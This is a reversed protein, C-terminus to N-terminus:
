KYGEYQQMVHNNDLELQPVPFYYSAHTWAIPGQLTKQYYAAEKDGIKWRKVDFWWQGEGFLEAWREYKLPDHGLIADGAKTQDSLSTYDVASPANEPLSYARRHVKNIYELATANDGTNVCAEAYLLYIDALRLVIFDANDTARVALLSTSISAYKRLSWGYYQSAVGPNIEKYKLVIRQVPTGASDTYVSDVWPQLGSVYLRPDTTKNTRLAKSQAVYAPDCINKVNYPTIPKSPDFAPNPVMGWIPLNFGFRSLNKDHIFENGFGNAIATTDTVNMCTPAYTLGMQSTINPGGVVGYASLDRQVNVEFFSESSYSNQGNFM